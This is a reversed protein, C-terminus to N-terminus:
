NKKSRSLCGDHNFWYVGQACKRQYPNYNHGEEEVQNVLGSRFQTVKTKLGSSFEREGSFDAPPM